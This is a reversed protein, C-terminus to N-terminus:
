RWTTEKVWDQMLLLFDSIDVTGDRNVDGLQAPQSQLWLKEGNDEM